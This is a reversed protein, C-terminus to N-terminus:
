PLEVKYLERGWTSDKIKRQSGDLVYWDDFQHIEGESDRTTMSMHMTDFTGLPVTLKEFTTGRSLVGPINAPATPNNSMECYALYQSKTFRDGFSGGNWGGAYLTFTTSVQEDNSIDVTEILERQVTTAPLSYYYKAGEPNARVYEKWAKQCNRKEGRALKSDELEDSPSVSTLSGAPSAGANNENRDNNESSGKGCAALTVALSFSLLFGHDKM